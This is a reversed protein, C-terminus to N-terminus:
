LRATQQQWALDEGSEVNKNLSMGNRIAPALFAKLKEEIIRPNEGAQISLMGEIMVEKILIEESSRVKLKGALPLFLMNALLSGYFTTILAVAMGSGITDPNDLQTLMNILGIVTGLLGFAPAFTGMTEFIGQGEGHREELFVLETEMINRVLEPDTGDVILLIGKQMFDDELQYAADELALLGERRATEALNIITGIVDDAEISKETFAVRLVKSLGAIKSFPYNAITAAITGGLTILFSNFNLYTRLTGGNYIAYMILIFGSLIGTLTSFDL